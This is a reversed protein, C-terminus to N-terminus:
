ILKILIMKGSSSLTIRFSLHNPEYYYDLNDLYRQTRWDRICRKSENFSQSFQYLIDDEPYLEEKSLPRSRLATRADFGCLVENEKEGQWFGYTLEVLGREGTKNISISDVFRSGM